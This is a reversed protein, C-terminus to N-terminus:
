ALLRAFSFKFRGSFRFLSQLNLESHYLLQRYLLKRKTLNDFLRIIIIIIIVVVVVIVASVSVTAIFVPM